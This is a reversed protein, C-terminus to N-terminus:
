NSLFIILFRMSFMLLASSFNLWNILCIIKMKDICSHWCGIVGLLIRMTIMLSKNVIISTIHRSFSLKLTSRLLKLFQSCLLKQLYANRLGNYKKKTVISTYKGKRSSWVIGCCEALYNVRQILERWMSCMSQSLWQQYQSCLFHDSTRESAPLLWPAYVFDLWPFYRSNCKIIEM